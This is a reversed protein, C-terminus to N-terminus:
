KKSNELATELVKIAKETLCSSFMDVMNKERSVDLHSYINTTM